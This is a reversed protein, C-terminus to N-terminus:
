PPSNIRRFMDSLGLGDPLFAAVQSRGEIRFADVRLRLAPHEDLFVDDSGPVYDGAPIAILDSLRAMTM